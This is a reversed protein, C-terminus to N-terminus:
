GELPFVVRLETGRGPVSAIRLSGGLAEVRERIGFLGLGREGGAAHAAAPEFGIGDDWVCCLVSGDDEALDVRAHKARAHRAVNTLAEQVIRYLCTEVTSGLRIHLHDEVEVRLGNRASVGDALFRLSEVLGLEDLQTPRMEKALHRIQDEVTNLHKRVGALKPRLFEPADAAADKLALHSAVLLPGTDDHLTHAIRRTAEELRDNIRRLAVNAEQFARHTMEFPSTAEAYFAAAATVISSAETPTQANAVVAAVAAHHVSALELLGIGEELAKRGTEYAQSLAPEGAHELYARLQAEYGGAILAARADSM